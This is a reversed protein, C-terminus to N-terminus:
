GLAEFIMEILEEKHLKSYGNLGHKKAIAHLEDVTLADLDVREENGSNGLSNSSKESTMEAIGLSELIRGSKEDIDFEEGTM